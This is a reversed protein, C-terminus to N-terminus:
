GIYVFTQINNIWVFTQIVISNYENSYEMEYYFIYYKNFDYLQFFQLINYCKDYIVIKLKNFKRDWSTGYLM